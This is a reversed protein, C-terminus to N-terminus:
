RKKQENYLKHAKEGADHFIGNGHKDMIIKVSIANYGNIYKKEDPTVSRSKRIMEVGYDDSMIKDYQERWALASGIAYIKLIGRSVDSKADLLGEEYTDEAASTHSVMVAVLFILIAFILYKKM